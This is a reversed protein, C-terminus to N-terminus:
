TGGKGYFLTLKLVSLLVEQQRTDEDTLRSKTGDAEREKLVSLRLRNSAALRLEPPPIRGLFATRLLARSM